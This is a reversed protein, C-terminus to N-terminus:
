PMLPNRYAVAHTGMYDENKLASAEREHSLAYYNPRSNFNFCRTSRATVQPVLFIEFGSASGFEFAMRERM